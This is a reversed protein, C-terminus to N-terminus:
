ALKRVVIYYGSPQQRFPMAQRLMLMVRTISIVDALVQEM